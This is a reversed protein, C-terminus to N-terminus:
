GTWVEGMRQALLRDNASVPKAYNELVTRASNGMRAAVDTPTFGAAIAQTAMFHRVDYLRIGDPLQLGGLRAAKVHRSFARAAWSPDYPTRGSPDDTFVFADDDLEVGARAALDVVEYRRRGLAAVAVPDLAITRIRRKHTEGRRLEVGGGVRRVLGDAATRLVGADLDVHGWRLAHAEVPRVGSGIVLVFAHLTPHREAVRALFKALDPASPTTSMAALPKPLRIGNGQAAPNQPIWGRRVAYGLAARLTAHIRRVTAAALPDGNRGAMNQYFASLDVLASDAEAEDLELRGRLRWLAIDGLAPVLYADLHYRATDSEHHVGDAAWWGELADRVTRKGAPAVTRGELNAQRAQRAAEAKDDLARQAKVLGRPGGRYTAYIFRRRGTVPHPAVEARLEHVGPARERAM